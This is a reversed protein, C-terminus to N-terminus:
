GLGEHLQQCWLVPGPVQGRQLEYQQGQGISGAQGSGKTSGEQVGASSWEQCSPTTQLILTGEIGEDLNYIFFSFLVPGMASEQLVGSTDHWCSAIVGNEVVGQGPWGALKKGLSGHGCGLWSWDTEGLSHPFNHWLSEQFIDIAMWVIPCRTISLSWTLWCWLSLTDNTSCDM